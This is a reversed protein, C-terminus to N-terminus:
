YTENNDNKCKKGGTPKKTKPSPLEGIFLLTQAWGAYKGFKAVFADSVRSFLKPALKADALEPIYYRTAIQWVHTDVPIAHHQDLSFLAVCSAVKPGVGPLTCLERVVSCLEMKRLSDLWHEGGGPKEQLAKVTGVVFKARYGFGADRLQQESICSLRDISPFKYFDFGGVNGLFDGFREMSSVMKEIRKINNNSSCLFQFLCEVPNQKLVRAGGDVHQALEAFRIDSFSFDQWM